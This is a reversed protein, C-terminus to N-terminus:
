FFSDLVMAEPSIAWVEETYQEVAAQLDERLLQVPNARIVVSSLPYREEPRQMIVLRVTEHDRIGLRSKAAKIATELGGISDILGNALSQRGTFVRGEALSDLSDRSINRGKSVVDMFREYFDDMYKQVAKEEEPDWKRYSSAADAHPHTTVVEKKIGLKDYLGKVIFKGGLVGISGIISNEHAILLDGGCAVYYAGSACTSGISVIVPKGSKKLLDMERWILDSALASGGSSNVRLIVARIKNNARARRLQAALTESGSSPTIFIGGPNSRGITINGQLMIVAIQKGPCWDMDYVERGPRYRVAHKSYAYAMLQDDYLTTDILGSSRAYSLSIDARAFAKKLSDVAINRASSVSNLFHEWLSSLTNELNERWPVSMTDETFIEPFSKYQGHRVFQAEVGIKELFGKYLSVEAAFGRVNFYSSPPMVIKSAASALYYNLRSTSEMFAVVKINKGRLRFLANRIDTAIAWGCRVNRTKVIVAKIDRTNEILALRDMLDLHGMTKRSRSLLKKEVRGEVIRKNLDLVVVKGPLGLFKKKSKFNLQSVYENQAGLTFDDGGIEKNGQVRLWRFLQIDALLTHTSNDWARSDFGPVLIGYGATFIDGYKTFGAL